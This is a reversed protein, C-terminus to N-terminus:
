NFFKEVIIKDCTLKVKNSRKKSKNRKTTDKEKSKDQEAKNRKKKRPTTQNRKEQNGEYILKTKM